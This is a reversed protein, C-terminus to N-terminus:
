LRVINRPYGQFMKSVLIQPINKSYEPFMAKHNSYDVLLDVNKTTLDNVKLVFVFKRFLSKGEFHERFTEQIGFVNCRQPFM